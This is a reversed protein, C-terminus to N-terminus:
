CCTKVTTRARDKAVAHARAENILREVLSRSGLVSLSLTEPSASPSPSGSASGSAPRARTVLM